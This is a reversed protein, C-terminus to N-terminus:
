AVQVEMNRQLMKFPVHFEMPAAGRHLAGQLFRQAIKPAAWSCPLHQCSADIGRAEQTDSM